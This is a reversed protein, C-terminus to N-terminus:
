SAKFAKTLSSTMKGMSTLVYASFQSYYDFVNGLVDALKLSGVYGGYSFYLDLFSLM